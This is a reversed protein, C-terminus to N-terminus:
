APTEGRPTSVRDGSGPKVAAAGPGPPASDAVHARDAVPATLAFASGVIRMWRLHRALQGAEDASPAPTM